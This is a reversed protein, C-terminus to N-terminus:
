TTAQDFRDYAPRTVREAGSIIEPTTLVRSSLGQSCGYVFVEVSMLQLVFYRSLRSLIDSSAFNM